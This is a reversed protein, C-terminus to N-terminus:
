AALKWVGRSSAMYDHESQNLIQRVKAKWNDNEAINAPANEAVKRYIDSLSAEGGLSIMVNKVVAKWTARLRTQHQFAMESLTSVISRIERPKTWLVIYEHMIRPLKMNGYSKSDSMTNHQTKIMVSSLESSPLRAIMEASYCSYKGNKRVDGMIMGYLGGAKTADRQNLLAIHLKENFEEESACRSLDDPHPQNGWVNGSYIVIDHYAPHSLVLDGEKGTTELISDKLVNFGSHLDLGFAEIGMEAAVEISTGSGVMPDIFVKPKISEFLSKYVHGSCNGRWSSKGWKGREPFSLVSM